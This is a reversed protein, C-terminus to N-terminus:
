RLGDTGDLKAALAALETVVDAPVPEYLWASGYKYDTAPCRPTNNLLWSTRDLASVDEPVEPVEQHACAARMDNLRWREWLDALRKADEVTFGAAPRTVSRLMDFCQGGGSINKRRSGKHFWHGTIAVRAQWARSEHMVTQQRHEHEVSLRIEVYVADGDDTRGIYGERKVGIALAGAQQEPTADDYSTLAYGEHEMGHGMSYSTHRHFWRMAGDEGGDVLAVPRDDRTIISQTM